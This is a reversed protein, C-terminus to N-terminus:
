YRRGRSRELVLDLGLSLTLQTVWKKETVAPQGSLTNAQSVIDLPYVTGRAEFRLHWAKAFPFTVGAGLGAVPSLNTSGSSTYIPLDVFEVDPDPYAASMRVTNLNAIIFGVNARIYPSASGRSNLRYLATGTIESSLASRNASNVTECAVVDDPSNPAAVSCSDEYRLNVLLLDVGLGLNEGKFYTGSLGVTWTESRDRQLEWVSIGAPTQVPQSTAWLDGGSAWGGSFTFILRAEDGTAQALAPASVTLALLWPILTRSRRM